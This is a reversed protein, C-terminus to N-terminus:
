YLRIFGFAKSSSSLHTGGAPESTYIERANPLVACLDLFRQAILLPTNRPRGVWTRGPRM